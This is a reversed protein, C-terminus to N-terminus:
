HEQLFSFRVMLRGRTNLNLINVKSKHFLYTNKIARGGTCGFVDCAFQCGEESNIGFIHM